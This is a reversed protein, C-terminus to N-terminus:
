IQLALVVQVFLTLPVSSDVRSAYKQNRQGGHDADAM